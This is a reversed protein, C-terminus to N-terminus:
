HLVADLLVKCTIYGFYMKLSFQMKDALSLVFHCNEVFKLCQIFRIGKKSKWISGDPNKRLQEYWELLKEKTWFEEFGNEVVEPNHALELNIPCRTCYAGASIDFQTLYLLEFM